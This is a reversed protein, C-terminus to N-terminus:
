SFPMTAMAEGHGIDLRDKPAKDEERSGAGPDHTPGFLPLFRERLDRM